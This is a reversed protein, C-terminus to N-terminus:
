TTWSSPPHEDLPIWLSPQDVGPKLVSVVPFPPRQYYDIAAGFLKPYWSDHVPAFRLDGVTTDPTLVLGDRIQEGLDNVILMAEQQAVGPLCLEVSGYSHWLGISYAWDPMTTGLVGTVGWGYERVLRANRRERAPLPWWRRAPGDCILCHCERDLV